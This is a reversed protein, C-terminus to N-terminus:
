RLIACKQLFYFAAGYFCLCHPKTRSRLLRRRVNTQPNNQKSSRLVVHTQPIQWSGIIQLLTCRCLIIPIALSVYSSERTVCIASSTLWHPTHYCRSIQRAASLAPRANVRCLRSSAVLRSRNM